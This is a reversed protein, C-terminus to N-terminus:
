PRYVPRRDPPLSQQIAPWSKDSGKLEPYVENLLERRVVYEALDGATAMSRWHEDPIRIGHEKEIAQIIRVRELYSPAGRGSLPFRRNIKVRKIGTAQAILTMVSREVKRLEPDGAPPEIGQPLVLEARAQPVLADLWAAGRAAIRVHPVSEWVEIRHADLQWLRAGSFTVPFWQGKDDHFVQIELAVPLRSIIPVSWFGDENASFKYSRGEVQVQLQGGRYPVLGGSSPDKIVLQGDVFRPVLALYVFLLLMVLYSTVRVWAPMDRFREFLFKELVNLM